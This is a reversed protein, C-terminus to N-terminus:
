VYDREGFVTWGPTETEFTQWYEEGAYRYGIEASYAVLPLWSQGVPQGSRILERVNAELETREEGNLGHELAFIPKGGGYKNRQTRLDRFHGEFREHLARVHELSSERSM